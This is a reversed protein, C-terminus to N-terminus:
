KKGVAFEGIKPGLFPVYKVHYEPHRTVADDRQEM